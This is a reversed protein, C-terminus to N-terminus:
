APWQIAERILEGEAVLKKGQMGFTSKARMKEREVMAAGVLDFSRV